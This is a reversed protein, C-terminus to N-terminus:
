RSRPSSSPVRSSRRARSRSSRSLVGSSRPRWREDFFLILHGTAPHYISRLFLEILAQLRAALEAAPWVRYLNAYAELVHLHTNMSRPEPADKASLRVDELPRWARDCAEVYGGHVRDACHAEILGYIARALALTHTANLPQPSVKVVKGDVKIAPPFDATIFLDSGTRSVMLKLLDNIFKSAQDREM